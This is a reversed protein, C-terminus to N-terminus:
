PLMEAAHKKSFPATTVLHKRLPSSKIAHWIMLRGRIHNTNLRILTEATPSGAIFFNSIDYSDGVSM